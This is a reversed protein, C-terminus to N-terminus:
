CTAFGYRFYILWSRIYWYNCHEMRMSKPWTYGSVFSLGESMRKELKVSLGNYHSRDSGDVMQIRGGYGSHKRQFRAVM